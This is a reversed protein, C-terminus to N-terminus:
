SARWPPGLAETPGSSSIQLGTRAEYDYDEEYIASYPIHAMAVKSFEQRPLPCRIGHVPAYARAAAAERSGRGAGVGQQHGSLGRDSPGYQRATSHAAPDTIFEDVGQIDCVLFRGNSNHYTFHSFAQAVQWWCKQDGDLASQDGVYGNNGNYKAYKGELFPEVLLYRFGGVESSDELRYVDCQSIQLGSPNSGLAYYAPNNTVPSTAFSHIRGNFIDAQETALKHCKLDQKLGRVQESVSVSYKSQKGVLVTPNVARGGAGMDWMRYCHRMGGVAFPSDRVRARLDRMHVVLQNGQLFLRDCYYVNENTSNWEAEEVDELELPKPARSATASCDSTVSSSINSFTQSLTNPRGMAQPGGAADGTSVLKACHFTGEAIACLKELLCFDEPGVGVAHLTLRRGFQERLTRLWYAPEQERRCGASMDRPRGDSLLILVFQEGADNVAGGAVDWAASLGAGYSTGHTPRISAELTTAVDNFSVVSYRDDPSSYRSALQDKIFEFCVDLVATVRRKWKGNDYVDIKEMSRSADMVFVVHKRM